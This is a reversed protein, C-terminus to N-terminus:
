FYTHLKFSYENILRQIQSDKQKGSYVMNETVFYILWFNNRRKKAKLLFLIM